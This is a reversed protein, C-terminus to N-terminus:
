SLKLKLDVLERKANRTRNFTNAKGEHQHTERGTAIGQPTLLLLRHAVTVGACGCLIVSECNSKLCHRLDSSAGGIRNTPNQLAAKESTAQCITASPNQGAIESPRAMLTMMQAPKTRPKLHVARGSDVGTEVRSRTTKEAAKSVKRSGNLM